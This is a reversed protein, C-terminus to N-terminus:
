RVKTASVTRLHPIGYAAIKYLLSRYSIDLQKATRKRNWSNRALTSRIITSEVQEVTHKVAQRLPVNKLDDINVTFEMTQKDVLGSLVEDDDGLVTYRITINELERINWPFRYAMLRNMVEPRFRRPSLNLRASHLDLLYNAIVPIDETRERLRPVRLRVADIKNLLDSRFTRTEADKRLDHTTACIIRVRGHTDLAAVKGNGLFTLLIAQLQLDLEGIEDFFITRGAEPTPDGHNIAAIPSHPEALAQELGIPSAAVCNLRIFRGRAFPSRLHIVKAILEKGTGSDGTILVPINVKAIRSIREAIISMEVSSGFIVDDPPIDGFPETVVNRTATSQIM